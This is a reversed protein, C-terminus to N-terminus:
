PNSFRSKKGIWLDFYHSLWVFRRPTEGMTGAVDHSKAGRFGRNVVVVIKRRNSSLESKARRNDIRKYSAM